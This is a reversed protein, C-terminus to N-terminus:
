GSPVAGEMLVALRAHLARADPEPLYRIRLPHERPGAGATDLWLTAMGHRRDFPSQSLRLAQLKRVEAFRWTRSLWGERVAILGREESYAAHRAWVRARAYLLPILVLGWAGAAGFRWIPLATALVALWMPMTFQRRWALPHLARWGTLPWAARPLLENILERMQGPTAVPALDRLSRKRDSPETAASDVVLSQRRLWRHVVGERVSYAQIRGRPLSGRLRSLLGREVRLRRGEASLVFGHFQLLALAVSLVRLAIMLALLLSVAGIVTGTTGLHLERTWGLMMRTWSALFRTFTESNTQMLAGLTAAVVVLGRNSILGLRIIDSTDLALLVRSAGAVSGDAALAIRPGRGRVLAEIAQADRIALVRMQGEPKAGGASELRVEAVDFLRHLPSQHLAVNHIRNFPIHRVSKQFVGSRIVVGDDDIRFRYTFYQGISYLVLAGAGILPWLESREGRGVLLLVVLPFAFQMLLEILVFLWSVPHLRREATPEFPTTM